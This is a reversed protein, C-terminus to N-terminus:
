PIFLDPNEDVLKRLDQYSITKAKGLERELPTSTDGFLYLLLADFAKVDEQAIRVAREKEDGEYADILSIRDDKACQLAHRLTSALKRRSM